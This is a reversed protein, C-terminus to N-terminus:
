GHDFEDQGHLSGLLGATIRGAIYSLDPDILELHRREDESLEHQRLYAVTDLIRAMLAERQENPLQDLYAGLRQLRRRIDELLDDVSDLPHWSDEPEADFRATEVDPM